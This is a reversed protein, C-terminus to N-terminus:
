LTSTDSGMQASKDEGLGVELGGLLHFPWQLKRGPHNSLYRVDSKCAAREGAQRCVLGSVSGGSVVTETESPTVLRFADPVEEPTM